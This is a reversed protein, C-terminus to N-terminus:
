DKEVEAGGDVQRALKSGLRMSARTLARDNPIRWGGNCFWDSGAWAHMAAAAWPSLGSREHSRGLLSLERSVANAGEDAAATFTTEIAFRHTSLLSVSKTKLLRELDFRAFHKVVRNHFEDNWRPSRVISFQLPASPKEIVEAQLWATSGMDDFYPHLFQIDPTEAVTTSKATNCATCIPVLNSPQLALEPFKERPLFHDLAASDRAMCTPCIDGPVSQRLLTYYYRADSRKPLLRNDYAWSVAEGEETTIAPGGDPYTWLRGSGALEGYFKENEVLLPEIDFVEEMREGNASLALVDAIGFPPLNISFM